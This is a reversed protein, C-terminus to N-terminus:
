PVLKLDGKQQKSNQSPQKTKQFIQSGEVVEM